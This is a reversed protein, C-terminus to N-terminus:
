REIVYADAVPAEDGGGYGGGHYAASSSARSHEAKTKQLKMRLVFPGRLGDEAGGNAGEHLTSDLYWRVRERHSQVPARSTEKSFGSRPLGMIYGKESAPHSQAASM